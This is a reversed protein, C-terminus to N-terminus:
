RAGAYSRVLQWRLPSGDPGTGDLALHNREEAEVATMRLSRHSETGDTLEYVSRIPEPVCGCPWSQCRRCFPPRRSM